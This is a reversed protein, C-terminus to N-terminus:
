PQSEWPQGAILLDPDSTSRALWGDLILNYIPAYLTIPESNLRRSVDAVTGIAVGVPVAAALQHIRESLATQRPNMDLRRTM